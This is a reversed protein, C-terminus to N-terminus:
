EKLVERVKHEDYGIICTDNNVILTPFSCRPNWKKLEDLLTERDKGQLLDADVYYYEAGIEKLLKKTKKCWVCTSLAFLVVHGRDEGEIHNMPIDM